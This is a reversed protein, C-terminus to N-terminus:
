VVGLSCVEGELLLQRSPARTFTAPDRGKTWLPGRADLFLVLPHRFLWPSEPSGMTTCALVGLLTVRWLDGSLAAPGGIIKM